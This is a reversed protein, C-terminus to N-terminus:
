EWRLAAWYVTLSQATNFNITFGSATKATVWPTEDSVPRSDVELAVTYDVDPQATSFLVAKSTEAAFSASRRQIIQELVTGGSASLVGYDSGVLKVTSTNNIALEKLRTGVVLASRDGNLTFEGTEGCSALVFEGDGQLTVSIPPVLTSNRGVGECGSVRYESGAVSPLTGGTDYTLIVGEMHMTGEAVFSACDQVLVSSIANSGEFSGGRVRVHNVSTAWVQRNGGVATAVLKCNDVVAGTKAVDSAAAGFVRVCAFTNHINRIELNQLVVYEPVTGLDAHIVVTHDAGAGNAVTEVPELIAGGLGIVFVWDRVINVTEQYVGPGVLIVYPELPGSTVPVTDLAAQITTFEAGAGSRGVVKIGGVAKLGALGSMTIGGTVVPDVFEISGDAARRILRTGAAGPEIQIQDVLLPDQPM